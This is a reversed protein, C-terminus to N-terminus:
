VETALNKIEDNNNNNIDIESKEYLQRHEAADGGFRKRIQQVVSRLGPTLTGLSRMFSSTSSAQSDEVVGGTGTGASTSGGSKHIDSKNYTGGTGKVESPANSYNRVGGHSNTSLSPLSDSNM